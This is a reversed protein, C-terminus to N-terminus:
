CYNTIIHEKTYYKNNQENSIGAIMVFFGWVVRMIIPSSMCICKIESMKFVIIITIINEVTSM